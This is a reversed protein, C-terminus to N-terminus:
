ITDFATPDVRVRSADAILEFKGDKISIAANEIVEGNGLHATAGIFLTPREANASITLMLAIFLKLTKNKM